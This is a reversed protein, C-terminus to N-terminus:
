REAAKEQQQEQEPARESYSDLMQSYNGYVTGMDQTVMQPTPNLPTGPEGGLEPSGLFTENVTSRVDKIAERAMAKMEAAISPQQEAWENRKNMMQEIIGPSAQEESMTM